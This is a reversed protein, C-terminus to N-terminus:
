VEVLDVFELNLAIKSLLIKKAEEQNKASIKIESLMKVDDASLQYTNLEVVAQLTENQVPVDEVAEKKQKIEINYKIKYLNSIQNSIIDRAFDTLDEFQLVDTNNLEITYNEIESISLGMQEWPKVFKDEIAKKRDDLERQKDKEIQERAVKNNYEIARQVIQM